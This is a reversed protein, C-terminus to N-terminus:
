DYLFAIKPLPKNKMEQFTMRRTDTGGIERKVITPNQPMQSVTSARLINMSDEGFDVSRHNLPSASRSKRFPMDKVHKPLGFISDLEKDLEKRLNVSNDEPSSDPSFRSEAALRHLINDAGVSLRSMLDTSSSRPIPVRPLSDKTTAEPPDSDDQDQLIPKWGKAMRGSSLEMDSSTDPVSAHRAHRSKNSNTTGPIATGNLIAYAIENATARQAVSTSGSSPSGRGDDGPGTSGSRSSWTVSDTPTVTSLRYPRTLSVSSRVHRPRYPFGHGIATHSLHPNSRSAAPRLPLPLTPHVAKWASASYRVPISMPVFGSPTVLGSKRPPPILHNHSTSPQFIPPLSEHSTSRHPLFAAPVPPPQDESTFIGLGLSRVPAPAHISSSSPTANLDLTEVDNNSYDSPSSRDSSTSVRGPCKEPTLPISRSPSPRRSVAPTPYQNVPRRYGPKMVHAEFPRRVVALMWFLACSAILAIFSISITARAIVCTAGAEWGALDPSAALCVPQRSVTIMNWGTTLLWLVCLSVALRVAFYSANRIISPNRRQHRWIRQKLSFITHLIIYASSALASSLSLVHTPISTTDDPDAVVLYVTTVVVFVSSWLLVNLCVTIGILTLQRRPLRKSFKIATPANDFKPRQSAGQSSSDSGAM